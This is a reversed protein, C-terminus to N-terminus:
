QIIQVPNGDPDTGEKLIKPLPVKKRKKKKKPLPGQDVQSSDQM